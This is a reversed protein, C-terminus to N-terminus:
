RLITGGPLDKDFTYLVAEDQGSALLMGESTYEHDGIKFTKPPLNVVFALKRGRLHDPAYWQKIGAFIIRKGIEDGFNVDLRLLKSSGVVDAADTVEGVRLDLKAFDPFAVQSKM